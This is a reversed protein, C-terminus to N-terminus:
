VIGRVIISIISPVVGRVVCELLLALCPIESALQVTDKVAAKVTNQVLPHKASIVIKKAPPHPPNPHQQHHHDAVDVVLVFKWKKKMMMMLNFDQHPPLDGDRVVFPHIENIVLRLRPLSLHVVVIVVGM